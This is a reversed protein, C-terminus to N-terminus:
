KKYFQNRIRSLSTDTIGLFSAIHKLQAYEFIEKHNEILDQYRLEASKNIRGITQQKFSVFEKVIIARAFERFESTSHFLVNLKEFNSIYGKCPTLAQINEKSPTHQFFSSAEFIIRKPGYFATTIEKGEEDTTHARLYGDVLFFYGSIKGEKLLFDNKELELIEFQNSIVDLANENLQIDPITEKIFNKLLIKNM